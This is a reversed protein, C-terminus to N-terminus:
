GKKLNIPQCDTTWKKLAKKKLFFVATHISLLPSETTNKVIIKNVKRKEM